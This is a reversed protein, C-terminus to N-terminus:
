YCNGCGCHPDSFSEEVRILDLYQECELAVIDDVISRLSLAIREADAETGCRLVCLFNHDDPESGAPDTGRLFVGFTGGPEAVLQVWRGFRERRRESM